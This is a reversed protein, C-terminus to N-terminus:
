YGPCYGYGTCHYYTYQAIPEAGAAGELVEDSVDFNPLQEEIGQITREIKNMARTRELRNGLRGDEEVDWRTYVDCM